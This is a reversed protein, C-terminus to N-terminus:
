PLTNCNFAMAEIEYLTVPIRCYSLGELQVIAM